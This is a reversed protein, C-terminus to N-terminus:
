QYLADLIGARDLEEIFSSDYFEEATRTRMQPSEYIAMMARIGEVSPYPKNPFDMVVAYMREQTLADTINFWKALSADFAARNQKMLAVAEVASKVFRAATDRNAALWTREAMIGSGALPMDYQRLDVVDNLGAEPALAVLMASAMTADVRSELLAGITNARDVLMIDEGPVWGMAQAFSLLGVHTVTGTSSYGLRKGRLEEVSSIEPRGIIHSKVVGEQTALIVRDIGGTHVARYITPSGGGVAMPATDIDQRVTEPPVVVGSNRAVEAANPTVFQHIDLGNREYIGNDAAMLFPVKNISVDGLAVDVSVLDEAAHAPLLWPLLALMIRFMHRM